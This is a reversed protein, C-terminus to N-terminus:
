GSTRLPPEPRTTVLCVRGSLRIARRPRAAESVDLLIWVWGIFQTKVSKWVTRFIRQDSPTGHESATIDLDSLVPLVIVALGFPLSRSTETTETLEIVQGPRDEDPVVLRQAGPAM